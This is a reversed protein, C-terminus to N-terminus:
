EGREILNRIEERANKFRNRKPRTYGEPPQDYTSILHALRKVFQFKNADRGKRVDESSLVLDRRQYSPYGSTYSSEGKQYGKNKDFYVFNIDDVKVRIDSLYVFKVGSGSKKLRWANGDMLRLNLFCPETYCQYDATIKVDKDDVNCLEINEGDELGIRVCKNKFERTKKM